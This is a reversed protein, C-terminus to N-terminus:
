LMANQALNLLFVGATMFLPWTGSEYRQLEASFLQTEWQKCLSAIIVTHQFTLVHPEHQKHINGNYKVM